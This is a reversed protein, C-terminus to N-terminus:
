PVDGEAESGEDDRDDEDEHGSGDHLGPTLGGLPEHRVRWLLAWDDEPNKLAKARAERARDIADQAFDIVPEAVFHGTSSTSFPNNAPDTAESVPVGHPGRNTHEADWDALLRAQDQLSYESERVTVARTM